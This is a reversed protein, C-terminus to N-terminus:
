MHLPGIARLKGPQAQEGILIALKCVLDIRVIKLHSHMLDPHGVAVANRRISGREFDLLPVLM